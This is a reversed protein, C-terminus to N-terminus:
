RRDWCTEDVKNNKIYDIFSKEDAEIWAKIVMHLGNWAEYVRERIKTGMVKKDFDKCLLSWTDAM